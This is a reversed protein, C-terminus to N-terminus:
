RRELFALNIQPGNNLAHDIVSAILVFLDDSVGFHQQLEQDTAAKKSDCSFILKM